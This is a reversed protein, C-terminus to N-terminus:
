RDNGTDKNQSSVPLEDIRPFEHTTKRLNKGHDKPM